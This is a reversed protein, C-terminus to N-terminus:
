VTCRRSSILDSSPSIVCIFVTRKSSTVLSRIILQFKPFAQQQLCLHKRFTPVRKGYYLSGCELIHYEEYDYDHFSMNQRTSIYKHEKVLPSPLIQKIRAVFILPVSINMVQYNSPSFRLETIVTVSILRTETFPRLIQFIFYLFHIFNTVVEGKYEIM